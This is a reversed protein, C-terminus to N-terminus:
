RAGILARGLRGLELESVRLFRCAAYFVLLGLPISISLDLLRALRGVGLWIEISHNALFVAAGM